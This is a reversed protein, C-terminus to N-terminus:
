KITEWLSKIKERYRKVGELYERNEKEVDILKGENMLAFLTIDGHPELGKHCTQCLTILNDDETLGGEGFPRIHHVHLELDTYDRHSRGCIACKYGERKIIKMRLKPTPAKNFAVNPLSEVSKFGALGSLVVECPEVLERLSARGQVISKEILVNGGLLFFVLLHSNTNVVLYYQGISKWADAMYEPNVISAVRFEKKLDNDVLGCFHTQADWVIKGSKNAHLTLAYYEKDSKIQRMEKIISEISAKKM